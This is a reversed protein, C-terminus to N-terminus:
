FLCLQFSRHQQFRGDRRTVTLPQAKPKGKNQFIPFLHCIKEKLRDCKGRMTKPLPRFLNLLYLNVLLIRRIPNGEVLGDLSFIEKKPRFYRPVKPNPDQVPPPIHPPSWFGLKNCTSHHPVYHLCCKPPLQM